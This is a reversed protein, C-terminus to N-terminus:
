AKQRLSEHATDVIGQAAIAQALLVGMHMELEHSKAHDLGIKSINRIGAIGAAASVVFTASNNNLATLPFADEVPIDEIQELQNHCVQLIERNFKKAEITRKLLDVVGALSGAAFALRIKISTAHLRAAEHEQRVRRRTESTALWITGFWAGLTGISGVWVGWEAATMKTWLTADEAHWFFLLVGILALFGIALALLALGWDQIKQHM